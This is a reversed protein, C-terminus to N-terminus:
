QQLFAPAIKGSPSFSATWKLPKEPNRLPQTKDPKRLPNPSYPGSSQGMYPQPCLDRIKKKGPFSLLAVWESRKSPLPIKKEPQIKKKRVWESRKTFLPIKKESHIKKEPMNKRHGYIIKHIYSSLVGLNKEFHGGRWELILLVLRFKCIQLQYKTKNWIFWFDHAPAFQRPKLFTKPSPFWLQPSLPEIRM